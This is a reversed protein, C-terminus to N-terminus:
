CNDGSQNKRKIIKFAIIGGICATAAIIPLLIVLYNLNKNEESVVVALKDTKEINNIEYNFYVYYTGKKNSNDSYEDHIIRINGISANVKSAEKQIYDKIESITMTKAKDVRLVLSPMQFDTNDRQLVFIDIVYNFDACVNNTMQHKVTFEVQYNGPTSTQNYNNNILSYSINAQEVGDISSFMQKISEYSLPSEDNYLYIAGPGVVPFENKIDVMIAIVKSSENGGGDIVTIKAEYIGKISSNQLYNNYEFDIYIEGRDSINDNIDFLELIDEASMPNNADAEIIDPGEITPAVIDVVHITLLYVYTKEGFFVHTKVQHRGMITYKSSYYDNIVEYSFDKEGNIVLDNMIESIDVLHTGDTYIYGDLDNKERRPGLYDEFRVFDNITGEILMINTSKPSMVPLRSFQVLSARSNFTIYYLDGIERELKLLNEVRVTGTNWEQIEVICEEYNNVNDGITDHSLVLTFDRNFEITTHIDVKSFNDGTKYSLHRIDLHNLGRPLSNSMDYKTEEAQVEEVKIFAASFVFMLIMLFKKMKM